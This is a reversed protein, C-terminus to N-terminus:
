DQEDDRKLMVVLRWLHRKTARTDDSILAASGVIWVGVGATFNTLAVLLGFLYLCIWGFLRWM